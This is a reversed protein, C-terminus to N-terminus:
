QVLRTASAAKSLRNMIALGEDEGEVSQAIILTPEVADATRLAAFLNRAMEEHSGDLSLPFEYYNDDDVVHEKSAPRLTIRSIRNGSKLEEMLFARITKEVIEPDASSKSHFLLLPSTPSYHRYKMGPTAPRDEMQKIEEATLHESGKRFIQVNPLFERLMKTTVSGPRLILPPNRTADLVTSELGFSCQGGDVIYNIRDRLDDLVHQATTPSPKGSLNASPAALPVRVMDIIKRAIPHRPFRVAVTDLGATVIDHVKECKPLLVTLPGPWLSKLVPKLHQPIDLSDLVNDSAPKPSPRVLFRLMDLSSIHVILPNDAPRNKTDYIRQCALPDLANAALGYVTETPIGVVQGNILDEVAPRLIAELSEESVSSAELLLTKTKM